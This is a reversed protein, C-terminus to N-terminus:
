PANEAANRSAPGCVETVNGGEFSEPSRGFPRAVQRHMTDAVCLERDLSPLLAFTQACQELERRIVRYEPHSDSAYTMFGSSLAIVEPRIGGRFLSDVSRGRSLTEVDGEEIEILVNSAPDAIDALVDAPMSVVGVRSLLNRIMSDGRPASRYL